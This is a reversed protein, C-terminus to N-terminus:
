ATRRRFTQRVKRVGADTDGFVYSADEKVYQVHSTSKHVIYVIYHSYHSVYMISFICFSHRKTSGSSLIKLPLFNPHVGGEM